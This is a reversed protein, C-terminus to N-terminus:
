EGKYIRIYFVLIVAGVVWSVSLNMLMTLLDGVLEGGILQTILQTSVPQIFLFTIM